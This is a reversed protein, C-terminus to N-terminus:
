RRDRWDKEVPWPGRLPRASREWASRVPGGPLVEAAAARELLLRSFIAAVAAAEEDTPNGAVVRIPVPADAEDSV